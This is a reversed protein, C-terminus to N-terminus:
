NRGNIGEQSVPLKLTRACSHGCRNKVVCEVMGGGGYKEFVKLRLSAADVHFIDPKKM